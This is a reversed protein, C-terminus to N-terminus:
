FSKTLELSVNYKSPASIYNIYRYHARDLTNEDIIVTGSSTPFECTNFLCDVITYANGRQTYVVHGQAIPTVLIVLALSVLSRKMQQRPM